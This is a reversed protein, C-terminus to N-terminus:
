RQESTSVRCAAPLPLHVPWRSTSISQLHPVLERQLADVGPWATRGAKVSSLQSSCALLGVVARGHHELAVFRGDGHTEASQKCCQRREPSKDTATGPDVDSVACAVRDVLLDESRELIRDDPHTEASAGRHQRRLARARLVRAPLLDSRRVNELVLVDDLHAAERSGQSIACSTLRMQASSRDNTQVRRQVFFRRHLVSRVPPDRLARERMPLSSASRNVRLSRTPLALMTDPCSLDARSAPCAASPSATPAATPASLDALAFKSCSPGATPRATSSRSPSM